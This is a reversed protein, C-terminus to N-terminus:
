KKERLVELNLPITPLINVEWAPSGLEFRPAPRKTNKGLKRSKKSIKLPRYSKEALFLSRFLDIYHFNLSLDIYSM